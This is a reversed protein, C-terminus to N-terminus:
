VIMCVVYSCCPVRLFNDVRTSDNIFITMPTLYNRHYTTVCVHCNLFENSFLHSRNILSTRVFYPAARLNRLPLKSSKKRGGETYSNTLNSIAIGNKRLIKQM